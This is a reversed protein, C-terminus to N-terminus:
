LKYVVDCSDIFREDHSVALVTLGNNCLRRLFGIVRQVSQPDLASTPEDVILVKKNLLVSVALMIRQRQGGSIEQVRKGYLSEELGLEKFLEFLQTKDCTRNGNTKLQFPIDIMESVWEAPLALEQPLWAILTRIREISSSTLHIDDIRIDGESLSVFGMLANLLSSKGKGSEGTICAVTGKSIHMTFDTFVIQNDYVISANDVYIM